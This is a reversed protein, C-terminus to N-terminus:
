RARRSQLHQRAGLVLLAGALILGYTPEPTPVTLVSSIGYLQLETSPKPNGANVWLPNNATITCGEIAAVASGLYDLPDAKGNGDTGTWTFLGPTGGTETLDIGSATDLGALSWLGLTSDAVKTGDLLFIPVDASGIHDIANVSSTSGIAEWTAGLPALLSGAANADTNVITDYDGITTSTATTSTSTVFVIRYQAGPALGSPLTLVTGFLAAPAALLSVLLSACILIRRRNM